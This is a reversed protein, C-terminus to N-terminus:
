STAPQPHVIELIVVGGVVKDGDRVPFLNFRASTLRGGRSTIQASQGRLDRGERLALTIPDLAATGDSADTLQVVSSLPRNILEPAESGTLHVVAPNVRSINLAKTVVIVLDNLSNVILQNYRLQHAMAQHSWRRELNESMLRENAATLEATRERVKVELQVNAEELVTAAHRRAVIDNRMLWAVGALLLVDLAVGSWVTWRTTQSQLYSATDREALLAMQDSKLKNVGRGIAGVTATDAVTLLRLAEAHDLKAALLIKAAADAHQNVLAALQLLQAQLAPETRTLAKAIELHEGISSLAEQTASRDRPHNTMVYTRLASDTAHVSSLIADVELIVAHTHNVWDASRETRNFNRVSIVVVGVLVVSILGFAILMRRITRDPPPPSPPMATM